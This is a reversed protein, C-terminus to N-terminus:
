NDFYWKMIERKFQKIECRDNEEEIATLLKQKEPSFWVTRESKEETLLRIDVYKKNTGVKDKIPSLNTIYGILPTSITKDSFILFEYSHM